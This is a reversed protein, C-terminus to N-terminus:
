CLGCKSSHRHGPTPCCTCWLVDSVRSTGLSRSILVFEARRVGQISTRLLRAIGPSVVLGIAAMAHVLSPGLVGTIAIALVLGPFALWTDAIRMLVADTKGGAFGAVLGWATGLIGAVCLLVLLGVFASRTGFIMRSLVDRGDGDTGLLHQWTPAQLRRSFDIALPNYPAILPAFCAVVVLAFIFAAAVTPGFGVERLRVGAAHWTSVRQEDDAHGDLGSGGEPSLTSQGVTQSLLSM